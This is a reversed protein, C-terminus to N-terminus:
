LNICDMLTKTSTSLINWTKTKIISLSEPIDYVSKRFPLFVSKERKNHSTLKTCTLLHYNLAWGAWTGWSYLGKDNILLEKFPLQKNNCVSRLYRGHLRDIKSNNTHSHCQWILPCHMFQSDLFVDMLIKWKAINTYQSVRALAKVRKVINKAYNKYTIILLNDEKTLHAGLFKECASYEIKFHGNKM